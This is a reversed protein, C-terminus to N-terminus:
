VEQSCSGGRGEQRETSAPSCASRSCPIGGMNNHEVVGMEGRTHRQDAPLYSRGPPWSSSTNSPYFVLVSLGLPQTESPFFPPRTRPLLPSEPDGLYRYVTNTHFPFSTYWLGSARRTISLQMVFKFLTDSMPSNGSKCTGAWYQIQARLLLLRAFLKLFYQATPYDDGNSHIPLRSSPYNVM